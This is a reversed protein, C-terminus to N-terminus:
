KQLSVLAGDLFPEKIVVKILDNEKVESTKHIYCKIFSETHGIFYDGVKEEVLLNQSTNKLSNLNELRLQNNIKQFVKIRKDVIDKNILPLNSAKTGNRKSYPFIHMNYFGAEKITNCTEIFDNDTETPFGVIVDTTIVANEFYKKILKVKQLYEEKSYHRNMNKLTNNAGSQMSLHFHPCFNPMQKLVCLFEDTIINVELSGLRIRAPINKLATLLSGLALKNEIRYDSLNIGVLVIEKVVTAMKTAELVIDKLLRSRSRGRVYPILCYSCFNNCGDQVKIFGRTQNPSVSTFNEYNKNQEFCINNFDGLFNQKVKDKEKCNSTTKNEIIKCKTLHNKLYTDVIQSINNKGFNGIVSVVNEKELFQNRNHESACGMVFIPANNNLKKFKAITSRSKREGENTVACTNLIYADAKEISNTTEYGLTKLEEGVCDCEYQNVKCGLSFLCIKMQKTGKNM